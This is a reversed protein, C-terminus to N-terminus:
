KQNENRVGSIEVLTEMNTMFPRFAFQKFHQLVFWIRFLRFQKFKSKSIDVYDLGFHDQIRYRIVAKFQNTEIKLSQLSIETAWTDHVTIGMGNFNDKFNDFKPLRCNLIIQYLREKDTTLLCKKEWDIREALFDIIRLLSSNKSKDGLVQANLAANLYLSTFPSGNGHQMHDIMKAMINKYPGYFSFSRSLSKFEDFLLNACEPKSIKTTNISSPTALSYMGSPFYTKTLTYPNVKASVDTLHYTTKLQSENLDGCCMDSASYDNMRKTTKFIVSPFLLASM